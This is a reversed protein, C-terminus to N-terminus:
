CVAKSNHDELMKLAAVRKDALMCLREATVKGGSRASLLQASKILNKIERGNLPLTSLRDLDDASVDFKDRGLHDFFNQWVQKRAHADLDHYPLFLDVRSQFAHDIRSFRNTTLFLIGQYYELKTLFIAVLENRTLSDDLRAGLFIDAEDLLLMANWLRCLELADTLAAEVTEPSTGLMGASVMYLPVRAKEAVAEATYTKGVGPPGFMLIIIGRGKERVFDDMADDSNAKSEVFEWALEKEGGPLVLNDFAKDNWEIDELKDILFRGWKKRKLDFGILWPTTLLCHGDSLKALNEVRKDPLTQNAVPTTEPTTEQGGDDSECEENENESDSNAEEPEAVDESGDTDLVWLDPKVYNNSYYYAHTDIIVRGTMTEEQWGEGMLVKTGNYTQFHYGRLQEFRRGRAVMARKIEDPNAAFSLPYVPLSTVRTYGKYWPVEVETREFGCREGDWDVYEVEISWLHRSESTGYKVVRCLTDVGWLKILVTEEPSFIQWLMDYKIKGTSRTAALDDVSPALIPQLFDVLQDVARKKEDHGSSDKLEQHLTQLRDWRHVLPKSEPTFTWNEPDLDLDQYNALAESLFGRMHPCNITFSATTWSKDDCYTHRQVIQTNRVEAELEHQQDQNSDFKSWRPPCSNYECDHRYLKQITEAVEEPEDDEVEGDEEEAEAEAEDTTAPATEDAGDPQNEDVVVDEAAAEAESADHFTEDAAVSATEDVAVIVETESDPPTATIIAM